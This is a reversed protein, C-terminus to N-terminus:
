LCIEVQQVKTGGKLVLHLSMWKASLFRLLGQLDAIELWTQDYNSLTQFAKLISRNRSSSKKLGIGMKSKWSEKPQLKCFLKPKILIRRTILPNLCLWFIVKKVRKGEEVYLKEIMGPVKPSVQIQHMPIIYGKAELVINEKGQVTPQSSKEAVTKVTDTGTSKSSQSSFKQQGSDAGTPTM